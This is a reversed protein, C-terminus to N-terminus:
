NIQYNNSADSVLLTPLETLSGISSILTMDQSVSETSGLRNLWIGRLGAERAGIADTHLRDGVYLGQSPVVSFMKCAHEFIRRDPKTVGFEGSIITHVIRKNLDLANLKDLSINKEGNTIIGFEVDPIAAVLSDLTPIVDDYLTWARRYEILYGNFWADAEIDSSICIGFDSAFDRVRLRRQEQFGVEGMLHSHYHLEELERWRILAKDHDTAARSCGSLHLHRTLGQAVAATHAFLTDDLDFLIIRLTM